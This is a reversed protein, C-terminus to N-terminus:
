LATRWREVLGAITEVLTRPDVPKVLYAAFGAAMAKRRDEERAYATLALAPLRKGCPRQRVEALLEYGDKEPLGVDSLLVDFRPEEGKEGAEDFTALAEGASAALTVVAGFRELLRQVVLRTHEEDEVFLVRLGALLPEPASSSWPTARQESMRAEAATPAPMISPLEVVFTAGQGPGASKAVITGGHLEVLQRAIALGLGLGGHVRTTSADAQRFREFVHPLFEPAIGRGTDEVEIRV